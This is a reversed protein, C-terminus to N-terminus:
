DTHAFSSHHPVPRVQIRHLMVPDKIDFEDGTIVDQPENSKCCLLRRLLTAVTYRRRRIHPWDDNYVLVVGLDLRFADLM